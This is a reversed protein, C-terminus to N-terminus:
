HQRLLAKRLAENPRGWSRAGALDTWLLNQKVDYGCRVVSKGIQLILPSRQADAASRRVYTVSAGAVRYSSKGRFLVADAAVDWAFVKENLPVTRKKPPLPSGGGMPWFENYRLLRGTQADVFGEYVRAESQLMPSYTTPDSYAVKWALLSGGGRITGKQEQTFFSDPDDLVAPEVSYITLEPDQRERLANPISNSFIPNRNVRTESYLHRLFAGPADAPPVHPTLSSPPRSVPWFYATLLVGSSPDVEIYQWRSSYPIGQIMPSFQLTVNPFDDTREEKIMYMKVPSPFHAASAYGNALRQLSQVSLISSPWPKFPARGEAVYCRVVGAEMLISCDTFELWEQTLPPIKAPEIRPEEPAPPDIGAVQAIDRRFQKAVESSTIQPHFGLFAIAYFLM